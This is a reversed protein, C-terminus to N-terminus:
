VAAGKRRLGTRWESEPIDIGWSRFVEVDIDFRHAPRGTPTGNLDTPVIELRDKFCLPLIDDVVEEVEDPPCEFGGSDHVSLIVRSRMGRRRFEYWVNGLAVNMADAVLGQCTWNKAERGQGSQRDRASARRFRRRGGFGNAMWGPSQPRQEAAAFFKVLDPYEADHGEMLERIQELTVDPTEELAQRLITEASAGYYGGFRTKKAAVRLPKHKKKIEAYTLNLKFAKNTLDSHLDLYDPHDEPLNNRRVHELLSKDGSNVAAAIIEAGKLDAFVLFWGPEACFVSRSICRRDREPTGEKAYGYWALIRELHDDRGGSINQLNPGSSSSRGTEVFGFRSRIREDGCVLALLGAEFVESEVDNDNEDQATEVEDPCRFVIKMATNIFLIDRVAAAIRHERSKHIITEQDASPVPRPRTPDNQYLAIAEAWLREEGSTKTAKYPELYLSLATDPRQRNWNIFEEGFLLEVKHRNKNLDLEPWSTEGRLSETLEDKKLQLAERLEKQRVRDVGLGYREMEAWAGWARMRTGFIKRCSHGFRDSDLMGDTNKRPDGNLKLYLRGTGDADFGAYRSGVMLEEPVNGYGKLQSKKIKNAKCYAEKWEIIPIDYREIGCHTALLVELGLEQSEDVAHAGVYTDFGGEFYTKQWGPLWQQVGKPDDDPGVFHPYLDIGASLLWPLDAKGFHAVLRAGRAPAGEFLRKLYPLAEHMPLAANPHGGCRRVFVIRAHGPAHSWQLTYLYAGPDTPHRGEWECDFAIYGGAASEKISEEVAAKLESLTYVAQHDLPIAEQTKTHGLERAVLKLGALLKPYDDPERVVAAPHEAVILKARHIDPPSDAVPRCDLEFDDVRGRYESVKAKSGRLAKLADAGLVLIVSPRCIAIEQHLLHVGDEVWASPIRVMDRPPMFRLLNTLYAPHTGSIPPLGAEKWADWLPKSNPGVFPRGAHVEDRGLCKGIVMLRCPQPGYLDGAPNNEFLLGPQFVQSTNTVGSVVNIALGPQYLVSRVLAHLYEGSPRTPPTKKRGKTPTATPSQDGLTIAFSVFSPGPSPLCPADVPLIPMEAAIAVASRGGFYRTRVTASDLDVTSRNMM